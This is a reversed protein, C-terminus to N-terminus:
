FLHYLHLLIQRQINYIAAISYIKKEKLALFSFSTQYLNKVSRNESEEVRPKAKKKVTFRAKMDNSMSVTSPELEPIEATTFIDQAFHHKRFESSHKCFEVNSFFSLLALLIIYIFKIPKM